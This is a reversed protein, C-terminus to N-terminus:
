DLTPIEKGPKPTVKIELKGDKEVVEASKVDKHARYRDRLAEARRKDSPHDGLQTPKSHGM